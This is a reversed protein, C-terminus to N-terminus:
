KKKLNHTRDVEIHADSSDHRTITKLATFMMALPFCYFNLFPMPAILTNINQSKTSFYAFALALNMAAFFTGYGKTFIPPVLSSLCHSIGYFMICCPFFHFWFFDSYGFWSFPRSQHLTPVLLAGEGTLMCCSTVLSSFYDQLHPRHAKRASVFLLSRDLLFCLKLYVELFDDFFIRAITNLSDLRLCRCKLTVPLRCNYVDCSLCHHAKKLRQFTCNSPHSVIAVNATCVTFLFIHFITM